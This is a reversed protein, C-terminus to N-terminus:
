PTAELRGRSRGLCENALRLGDLVRGLLAELEQVRRCSEGYRQQLEGLDNERLSLLRSSQAKASREAQLEAELRSTRQEIEAERQARASAETHAEALRAETDRLTERAQEAAAELEASRQAHARAAADAAAEFAALRASLEALRAEGAAIEERARRLPESHRDREFLWVPWLPESEPDSLLLRYGRGALHRAAADAGLRECGRLVIWDFRALAEDSLSSLLTAEQGPLDVLLLDPHSTEDTRPALQRLLTGLAVTAVPRAAPSALRPYLAGLAAYDVIGDFRSIPYEHWTADAGDASVCGLVIRPDHAPGVRGPAEDALRPDGDVLVLQGARLRRYVSLDTGRRAGLHLVLGMELHSLRSLLAAVGELHGPTASM